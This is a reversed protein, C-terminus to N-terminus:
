KTPEGDLPTADRFIFARVRGDERTVVLPVSGQTTQVVAAGRQHFESATLTVPKSKRDDM